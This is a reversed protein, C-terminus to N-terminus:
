SLKYIQNKNYLYVLIAITPIAILSVASALPHIGCRWLMVFDHALDKPDAGFASLAYSIHNVISFNSSFFICKSLDPYKEGLQLAVIIGITAFCVALLPGAAAIILRSNLPGLLKGFSTYKSILWSTSGAFLSDIAVQPQANSHILSVAAYHGWEHVLINGTTGYLLAHTFPPITSFTKAIPSLGDDREIKSRMFSNGELFLAAIRAFTNIALIAVTFVVLSVAVQPTAAFLCAVGTTISSFLVEAFCGKMMEISQVHLPKQESDVYLNQSEVINCIISM